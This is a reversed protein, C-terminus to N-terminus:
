IYLVWQLDSNRHVPSGLHVAQVAGEEELGTRETALLLEVGAVAVRVVVALSDTHVAAVEVETEVGVVVVVVAALEMRAALEVEAAAAKHAPSAAVLDIGVVASEDVAKYDSDASDVLVALRVMRLTWYRLVKCGTPPVQVLPDSCRDFDVFRVRRTQLAAVVTAVLVDGLEPNALKVQLVANHALALVLCVPEEATPGSQCQKM